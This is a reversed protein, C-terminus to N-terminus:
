TRNAMAVPLRGKLCHRLRGIPRADTIAGTPSQWYLRVLALLNDLDHEPRLDAFVYAMKGTCSLAFALPEGCNLMCRSDEVVVNRIDPHDALALRLADAFGPGQPDQDRVHCSRCIQVIHTPTSM